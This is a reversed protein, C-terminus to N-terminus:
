CTSFSRRTRLSSGAPETPAPATGASGADPGAISTQGTFFGTVILAPYSDVVTLTLVPAITLLSLLPFMVRAGFRDTLAGFRTGVVLVQVAGGPIAYKRMLNPIVQDYSGM